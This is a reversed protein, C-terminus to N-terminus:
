DSLLVNWNRPQKREGGSETAEKESFTFTNM